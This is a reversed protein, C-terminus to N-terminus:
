KKQWVDAKELIERPGSANTWEKASAESKLNANWFATSIAQLARHQKQKQKDNPDMNWDSFASHEGGEFVLEYFMNSKPLQEFVLRRSQSDTRNGVPSEVGPSHYQHCLSQLTSQCAITIPCDNSVFFLVVAKTANDALPNHAHTHTDTLELAARHATLTKKEPLQPENAEASRLTIGLIALALYFYKM